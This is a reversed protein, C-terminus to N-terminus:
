GIYWSTCIVLTSNTFASPSSVVGNTGIMIDTNGYLKIRQAYKPIYGAPVKCISGWAVSTIGTIAVTAYVVHGIKVLHNGFENWISAGEVIDTVGSEVPTVADTLERNTMAYPEFDPNTDRADRLMPYFKVHDVSAGKKVLVYVRYYPYAGVSEDGDYIDHSEAQQGSSSNNGHVVLCYTSASGGNCGNAIMAKNQVPVFTSSSGLIYFRSADTNDNVGNADIVTVQGASNRTVTFTIGNITTTVVSSPIQLLNKAGNEGMVGYVDTIVDSVPPHYPEYTHDTIDADILFPKFVINNLQPCNKFVVIGYWINGSQNTLTFNNGSGYEYGYYRVNLGYTSASGGSPCGSCYYSNGVELYDRIEHVLELVAEGTGDNTGGVVVNDIYGDNTLNVTFTNGRRTYVNGNWTGLTNLSKVSDLTAPIKNKGVWGVTDDLLDITATQSASIATNMATTNVFNSDNTLDSTKTPITTSDPLASVDTATLVVVGTKGNVSDVAGSGDQGQPIGFNFVAASSTGANTVTADSGAPLTTVTGVAITAADGKEGHCDVVTKGNVSDNSVDAGTFQLTSQYPMDTGSANQITHGVSVDVNGNADPAVSNVTQVSSAAKAAATDSILHDEWYQADGVTAPTTTTWTKSRLNPM